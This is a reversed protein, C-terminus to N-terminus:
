SKRSCTSGSATRFNSRLSYRPLSSIRGPCTARMFGVQSQLARIVIRCGCNRRLSSKRLAGSRAADIRTSTRLTKRRNRRDEPLPSYCAEARTSVRPRRRCRGPTVARGFASASASSTPRGPELPITLGVVSACWAYRRQCVRSRQPHEIGRCTTWANVEVGLSPTGPELGPTPELPFGASGAKAGSKTTKASAFLPPPLWLRLTTSPHLRAVFALAM